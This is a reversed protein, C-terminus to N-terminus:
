NQLKVGLLVPSFAIIIRASIFVCGSLLSLLILTRKLDNRVAGTLFNQYLRVQRCTGCHDGICHHSTQVTAMFFSFFVAFLILFVGLLVATRKLKAM